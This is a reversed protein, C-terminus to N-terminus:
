LGEGMLDVQHGAGQRLGGRLGGDLHDGTGGTWDWSLV